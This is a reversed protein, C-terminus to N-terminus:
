KGHSDEKRRGLLKAFHWIYDLAARAKGLPSRLGRNEATFRERQFSSKCLNMRGEAPTRGRDLHTAAADPPSASPYSLSNPPQARQRQALAQRPLLKPYRPHPLHPHVPLASMWGQAQARGAQPHQLQSTHSWKSLPSPPTLVLCTASFGQWPWRAAAPRSKLTNNLATPLM